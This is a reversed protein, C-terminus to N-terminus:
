RHAHGRRAMEHELMRKELGADDGMVYVDAAHLALGIAWFRM